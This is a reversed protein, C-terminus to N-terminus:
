IKRCRRTSRNRRSGSRCRKLPRRGSRSRSRSRSRRPSPCRRQGQEATWAKKSACRVRRGSSSRCRVVPCMKRPKQGSCYRPRKECTVGKRNAHRLSIRRGKSTKCTRYECKKDSSDGLGIANLVTEGISPGAAVPASRKGSSSSSSSSGLGIAGFFAGLASSTGDVAAEAALVPAEIAAVLATEASSVASAVAPAEAAMIALTEQAKHVRADERRVLTQAQRLAVVDGSSEARSVLQMDQARRAEADRLEQQWQLTAAQMQAARKEALKYNRRLASAERRNARVGGGVSSSAGARRQQALFERAGPSLNYVLQEEAAPAPASSSSGRVVIM